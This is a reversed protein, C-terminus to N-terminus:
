GALDENIIITNEGMTAYSYDGFSANIALFFSKSCGKLMRDHLEIVIARTRPLWNEFNKSFLDREATEIDLKLLDIQDFGGIEMIRDITFGEVTGEPDDPPAEDVVMAWKGMNYKDSIRMKMKANWLGGKVTTVDSLNAVNMKLLEFNEADPEVCVIRAEPYRSKFYITCLGINAGGDIITEPVFPLQFEYEKLAFIQYFTPVDSTGPRLSFTTPMSAIRMNDLQGSKLKGVLVSAELLGVHNCLKLWTKIENLNM